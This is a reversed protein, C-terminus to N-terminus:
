SHMPFSGVSDSGSTRAVSDQRAAALRAFRSRSSREAMRSDEEDSLPPRTDFEATRRRTAIWGGVRVHKGDIELQAALVLLLVLALSSAFLVVALRLGFHGVIDAPTGIFNTLVALAVTVVTLATLGSLINSTRRTRVVAAQQVRREAIRQLTQVKGEVAAVLDGFKDVESIVEWLSLEGGGLDTLASDLRARAEQVRMNIQFMWDADRELRGLSGPERWMDNDLMALLGRDMEMFLAYYAWMLGILKMPLEQQGRIAGRVIVVSSDIGPILLGQPFRAARSFTARFPRGILGLRRPGARSGGALVYVPHLWLLRGWEDLHQADAPRNAEQPAMDRGRPPQATSFLALWPAQRHNEKAHKAVAAAFVNATERAVAEYSEAVPSRVHSVTNPRLWSLSEVTRRAADAGLSSPVVVEYTGRIVGVGLDYLEIRFERLRWTWGHMLEKFWAREAEPRQSHAEEVAALLADGRRQVLVLPVLNRYGGGTDYSGVDHWKVGEYDWGGSPDGKLEEGLKRQLQSYDSIRVQLPQGTM